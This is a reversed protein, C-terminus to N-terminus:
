IMRVLTALLLLAMLNHALALPLALGTGVMWAGLALQLALLLLVAWAERRRGDRLALAALPALLLVMVVAGVRHVLQTVAAGANVPLSDANWAPERWPDLMAWPWHAADAARLCELMGLCSQGAFSASTLAGLAIQGMLVLSAVGAMVRVARGPGAAPRGIPAALRWCLAFMAMGGLLNGIAVAPVRAGRTWAGLVALALALAVLVLALLGARWMRPRPLLCLAVMTCVGALAVTATVRHALRAMQVPASDGAPTTGQQAARLASGFCGPWPACGLGSQSLRIFASLSTIALVLAACWLALQRLRARRHQLLDM